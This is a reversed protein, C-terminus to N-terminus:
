MPMAGRIRKYHNRAEKGQDAVEVGTMIKTNGDSDKVVKKHNDPFSVIKWRDARLFRIEYPAARLRPDYDSNAVAAQVDLKACQNFVQVWYQDVEEDAVGLLKQWETLAADTDVLITMSVGKRIIEGQKAWPPLRVDNKRLWTPVEVKTGPSKPKGGLIGDLFGM